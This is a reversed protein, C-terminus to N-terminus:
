VYHNLNFIPNLAPEDLPKETKTWHGLSLRYHGREIFSWPRASWTKSSFRRPSIAHYLYQKLHKDVRAIVQFTSFGRRVPMM